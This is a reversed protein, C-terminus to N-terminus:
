FIADEVAAKRRAEAEAQRAAERWEFDEITREVYNRSIYCTTKTRLSSTHRSRSMYSYILRDSLKWVAWTINDYDMIATCDGYREALLKGTEVNDAWRIIIAFLNDKYFYFFINEANILSGRFIEEQFYSPMPSAVGVTEYGLERTRTPSSFSVRETSNNPGIIFTRNNLIRDASSGQTFRINRDIAPLETLYYNIDSRRWNNTSDLIQQTVQLSQRARAIVQERNMDTTFGNWLEFPGSPAPPEPEAQALEITTTETNQNSTEDAVRIGVLMQGAPTNLVGIFQNNENWTGGIYSYGPNEALKKAFQEIKNRDYINGNIIESTTVKGDLDTIVVLLKQSNSKQNCSLFSFVLCFLCFIVFINKKM